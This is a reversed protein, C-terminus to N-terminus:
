DNTSLSDCIMAERTVRPSNGCAMPIILRPKSCGSKSIESTIGFASPGFADDGVISVEITGGALAPAFLILDAGNGTVSGDVPTDTNAAEIAERLSVEGDADENDALEDRGAARMQASADKRQKIGKALVQIVQDDDVPGGLEIEKNRVESLATSLVLTRLKDRSKRAAKLDDQLRTKLTDPM